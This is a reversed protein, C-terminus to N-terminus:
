IDCGVVSQLSCLFGVCVIGISFEVCDQNDFFIHEQTGSPEQELKEAEM